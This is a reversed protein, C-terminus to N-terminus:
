VDEQCRQSDISQADHVLGLFLCAAELEDKAADLSSQPLTGLDVLRRTHDVGRGANARRTGARHEAALLESTTLGDLYIRLGAVIPDGALARTQAEHEAKTKADLAGQCDGCFGPDGTSSGCVVCFYSM